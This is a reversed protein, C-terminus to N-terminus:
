LTPCTPARVDLLMSCVKLPPQNIIRFMANPSQNNHSSVLACLHVALGAIGTKMPACLLQM